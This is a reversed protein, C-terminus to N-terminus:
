PLKLFTQLKRKQHESCIDLNFLNLIKKMVELQCKSENMLTLGADGFM